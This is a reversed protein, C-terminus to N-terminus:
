AVSGGGRETETETEMEIEMKMKMGTESETESHVGILYNELHFQWQLRHRNDERFVFSGIEFKIASRRSGSWNIFAAGM